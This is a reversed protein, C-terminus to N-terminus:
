VRGPLAPMLLQKSVDEPTLAQGHKVISVVESATNLHFSFTDSYAYTKGDVPSPTETSYAIGLPSDKLEVVLRFSPDYARRVQFKKPGLMQLDSLKQDYKPFHHNFKAIDSAIAKAVSDFLIPAQERAIDRKLRIAELEQREREKEEEIQQKAQEIWDPM